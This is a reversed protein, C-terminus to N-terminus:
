GGGVARVIEVKAGDELPTNSYQSRPIVERGLAVAVGDIPLELAVVLDQVSSNSPVDTDTGNVRVRLTDSM